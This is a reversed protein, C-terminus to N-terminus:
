STSGRSDRTIRRGREITAAATRRPHVTAEPHAGPAAGGAPDAPDPTDAADDVAAPDAPEPNSLGPAVEGTASGPVDGGAPGAGDDGEGSGGPPDVLAGVATGDPGVRDSPGAPDGGAVDGVACGSEDVAAAALGANEEAIRPM